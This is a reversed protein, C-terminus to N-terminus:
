PIAGREREVERPVPRLWLKEITPYIAALPLAVLAGAIGALEAGIAFAVLLLEGILLTAWPIQLAVRRPPMETVYTNLHLRQDRRTWHVM